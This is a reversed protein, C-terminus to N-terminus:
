RMNQESFSVTGQGNGLSRWLGLRHRNSAYGFSVIGERPGGDFRGVRVHSVDGSGARLPTLASRGDRSYRWSNGKGGFVIDSGPGGDVDAAVANDFSKTLRGNMRQWPGSAGSSYAWGDSNIGVVDTGKVVDFEGFLLDSVAKSSQQTRRWARTAASWVNWQGSQTYFIDTRGDSDFDGFRLEKMPVAASTLGVLDGRGGRIYGVRGDGSRYLVDTRRDNDIDAFGLERTRKNSPRLYEWPLRGGRSMFWATGNAVFVDSRGDGDFDGTAIEGSYDVGLRNDRKHSRKGEYEVADDIDDHVAVNGSFHVGLMPTGRVKLAFDNGRLFTNLAVEFYTGAPGGSYEKENAKGRGHVDFMHPPKGAHNDYYGRLVYNFRAVYGSYARGSAAISHNNFELVNGEIEAYAGGGVVVGYGGSKSLNHHLYNREVRVLDADSPLLHSPSEKRYDSPTDAQVTGNVNVANHFREIESDAVVVRHGRRREAEDLKEIAAADETVRIGEATPETKFRNRLQKPGILHLGEIRATGSADAHFLAYNLHHPKARLVPRRGFRDREGVLRVGSNLPIDTLPPDYCRGLEDFAGCPTVMNWDSGSPVVITGNFGSRLKDALDVASTARYPRHPEAIPQEVVQAGGPATPLAVGLAATAAGALGAILALRPV